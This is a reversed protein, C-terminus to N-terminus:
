PQLKGGACLAPFPDLRACLGAVRILGGPLLQVARNRSKPWEPHHWATPTGTEVGDGAAHRRGHPPGQCRIAAIVLVQAHGWVTASFLGAFQALVAIIIEPLPFM